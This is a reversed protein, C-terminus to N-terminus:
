LNPSTWPLVQRALATVDLGRLLGLLRLDVLWITGFVLAIGVIHVMELVPYAYISAKLWAVPAWHQLAEAAAFMPAPTPTAM